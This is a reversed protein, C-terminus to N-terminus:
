VHLNNKRIVYIEVHMIFRNSCFALPFPARPQETEQQQEPYIPRQEEQIAAATEASNQVGDIKNRSIVIYSPCVCKAHGLEQAIRFGFATFALM